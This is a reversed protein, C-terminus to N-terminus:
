IHYTYDIFYIVINNSSSLIIFSYTKLNSIYRCNNTLSINSHYNNFSSNNFIMFFTTKIFVM